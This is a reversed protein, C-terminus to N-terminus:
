GLLALLLLLRIPAEFDGAGRGPLSLSTRRTASPLSRSKLIAPSLSTFITSSPACADLDPTSGSLPTRTPAGSDLLSLSTFITGSALSEPATGIWAVGGLRGESLSMRSCEAVALRSSLSEETGVSSISRSASNRFALWSFLRLFGFVAVVPLCGEAAGYSSDSGSTFMLFGPLFSSLLASN